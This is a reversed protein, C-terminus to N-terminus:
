REARVKLKVGEVAIVTIPEGKRIAEAGDAVASWLESKV